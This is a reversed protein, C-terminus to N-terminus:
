SAREVEEVRLVLKVFRCESNKVNNTISTLLKVLAEKRLTSNTEFFYKGSDVNSGENEGNQLSRSLM